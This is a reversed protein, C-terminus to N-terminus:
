ENKSNEKIYAEIKDLLLSYIDDKKMIDILMVSGIKSAEKMLTSCFDDDLVIGYKQHMEKCIQLYPIVVNNLMGINRMAINKYPAHNKIIFEALEYKKSENTISVEIKFYQRSVVGLMLSRRSTGILWRSALTGNTFKIAKQAQRYFKSFLVWGWFRNNCLIYRPLDKFVEYLTIANELAVEQYNDANKLSFDEIIYKKEEYPEFGLYDKLWSSDSPHDVIMKYVEAHNKQLTLYAEETMMKVNIKM